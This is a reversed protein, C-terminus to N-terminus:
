KHFSQLVDILRDMKALKEQHMEKILELKAEEERQRKASYNELWQVIETRQSTLKRAREKEKRRDQSPLTMLSDDLDDPCDHERESFNHISEEETAQTTEQTAEEHIESARRRNAVLLPAVNPRYGVIDLLELLICM